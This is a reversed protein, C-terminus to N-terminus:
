QISFFTQEGVPRNPFPLGINQMIGGCDSDQPSSMCGIATGEQNESLNTDALLASIDAVVVNQTPNFGPLLVEAQNPSTCRIPAQASDLQCGVSGLHIAFAQSSAAHVETGKQTASETSFSSSLATDVSTDFDLRMFKYGFNWNWWLSTLNLPSPALTSDIHNLAFPVGVTFRLGSYEGAPVAGVVQARTEGTGNVCGGTKDEFDLLAVNQHQWLGDQELVLPVANGEVDLLAVESVYLRFDLPTVTTGESGIQYTEGCAFPDDGVVGEFEITVVQSEAPTDVAIAAQQAASQPFLPLLIGVVAALKLRRKNHM